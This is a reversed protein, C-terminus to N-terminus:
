SGRNYRPSRGLVSWSYVLCQRRMEIQVGEKPWEWVGIRAITMNLVSAVENLVTDNRSFERLTARKENDLLDESLLSKITGKLTESNIREKPLSECFSKTSERLSDLADAVRAKAHNRKEQKNAGVCFLEDLYREFAPKDIKKEEFVREELERRQEQAEKRGIEVPEDEEAAEVDKSDAKPLGEADGSSLWEGFLQGFLRAYDFSNEIRRIHAELADGWASLQDPPITPDVRAQQLWLELNDLDLSGGVGDAAQAAGYGNWSRIASLLAQVREISTSGYARAEEVVRAHEKYSVRQKELEELKVSTIFQLTESFAASATPKSSMRSLSALTRDIRFHHLSAAQSTVTAM